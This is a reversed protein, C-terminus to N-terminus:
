GDGPDRTQEKIALNTPDRDGTSPMTRDEEIGSEINSDPEPSTSSFIEQLVPFLTAGISLALLSGTVIAFIGWRDIWQAFPSAAAYISVSGVGTSHTLRIGESSYPSYISDAWVSVKVVERPQLNGVSVVGRTISITNSDDERVLESVRASPVVVQVDSLASNGANSVEMVYCGSVRSVEFPVDTPVERRITRLIREAEREALRKGEETKDDIYTGEALEGILETSALRTEVANLHSDLTPPLHVESFTATARLDDSPKTFWDWIQLLALVAGIAIAAIKLFAISKRKM